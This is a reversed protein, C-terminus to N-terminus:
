QYSVEKGDERLEIFVPFRISLTGQSDCTEEFYQITVIRNLYQDQHDWFEKRLEDTLGSGVGVQNGKYDVILSGLTNEFKGTGRQFGIIKLDCDQFVKVKLLYNTRKCVYPASCDNLMVGELNANRASTVLSVVENYAKNSESHCFTKIIPVEKLTKSKNYKMIHHLAHRRKNYALMSFGRSFDNFSLIDFVNFTIGTKHDDQTRVIKITQKYQEKSPINDRDTILLEGDFVLGNGFSIDSKAMMVMNQIASEIELLGTIEQGQRSYLNIKYTDSSADFLVVALARIGDLKETVAITKGLIEKPHDFYKNALMCGFTPIVKEEVAKNVTDATVGIKITKTIYKAAFARTSANKISGLTAIVRGILAYSLAKQATLVAIMQEATDFPDNPLEVDVELSKEGIHFVNYPNLYTILMDWGKDDADKCATIIDVKKKGVASAIADFWRKATTFTTEVQNM